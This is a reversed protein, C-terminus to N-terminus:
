ECTKESKLKSEHIRKVTKSFKKNFVASPNQSFLKKLKEKLRIELIDPIGNNNEDALIKELIAKLDLANKISITTDVAFAFLLVHSLIYSQDPNIFLFIKNFAPHVFRVLLVSFVGWALSARLCVYGKINGIDNSYDWYRVKFIWLMLAGTVFELLTASAMGLLFVLVISDAVSLTSLLIIIAGFGYIPIIPGYLFGRNSLKKQKFSVWLVEWIYGVLAYSFFLVVWQDFTYSYM